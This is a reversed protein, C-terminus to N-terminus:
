ILMLGGTILLNFVSVPLLVKWGLSLVQDIRVRVISARLWMLFLVMIGVKLIFWFPSLIHWDPIFALPPKWGGLFLTVAIASLAFANSFES